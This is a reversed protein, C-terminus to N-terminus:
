GIPAPASTPAVPAPLTTVDLTLTLTDLPTGIFVDAELDVFGCHGLTVTKVEPSDVSYDNSGNVVLDYDGVGGPTDWALTMVVRGRTGVELGALDLQYRGADSRESVGFESGNLTGVPTPITGDFGVEPSIVTAGDPAGCPDPETEDEPSSGQDSLGRCFPADEFGACMDQEGGTGEFVFEVPMTEDSSLAPAMALASAALAAALLTSLTRPTRM